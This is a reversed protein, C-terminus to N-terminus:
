EGAIVMVPETKALASPILSAEVSAAIAKAKILAAARETTATELAYAAEDRPESVFEMWRYKVLLNLDRGCSRKVYALEPIPVIIKPLEDPHKPDREVEEYMKGDEPIGRAKDRAKLQRVAEVKIERLMANANVEGWPKGTKSDIPRM